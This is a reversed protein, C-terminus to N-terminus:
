AVPGQRQPASPVSWLQKLNQWQQTFSDRLERPALQALAAAAESAYPLVRSGELFSPTPSPSFAILINAIIAVVLAGRLLGAIGGLFHNFWSLGIWQFMRSLLAAILAGLVIVALFIAVFGLINAAVVSHVAPLLKAAVIGYCWFGAVFGVVMAILGVVVRALGSRLGAIGSMVILLALVVDFWNFSM